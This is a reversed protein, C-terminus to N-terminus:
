LQQEACVVTLVVELTGGLTFQQVVTSNTHWGNATPGSDLMHTRPEDLPNVVNNTVGGSVIQSGPDCDLALSVLTGGLPRNLIGSSTSKRIFSGGAPGTPGTPGPFGPPGAVGPAGNVGPIGDAGTPGAPGTPGIAGPMGPTGQPGPLGQQCRKKLVCFPHPHAVALTATLLIVLIV